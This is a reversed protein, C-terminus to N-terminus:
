WGLVGAAVFYLYQSGLFMQWFDLGFHSVDICLFIACGAYTGQTALFLQNSYYWWVSLQYALYSFFLYLVPFIQIFTKGFGFEARIYPILMYVFFFGAIPVFWLMYDLKWINLHLIDFGWQGGTFSIVKTGYTGLVNSTLILLVFSLAFLFLVKVDRSDM